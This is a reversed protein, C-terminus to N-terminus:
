AAQSYTTTDHAHIDLDKKNFAHDQSPFATRPFLCNTSGQAMVESKESRGDGYLRPDPMM